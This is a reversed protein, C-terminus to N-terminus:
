NQNEIDPSDSLNEEIFYKPRNKTEMYIKGIYGGIFGLAALNLGSFFGIISILFWYSMGRVFYSAAFTGAIGLFGAITLLIGLNGVMKIPKISFSSIGDFAFDLMKKLPYKSKGAARKKREYYVKDSKFGIQPIIGRLFLNDEKYQFLANLAKRSMLRYDAHNKIIEVGFIKMLGYFLKATFRKLISDKRRKSRVGYVIENGEYFKDIMQPITNIDDQLDADLSIVADAYKNAETLGAILANQHGRNRSLCIGTFLSDSKHLGTIIEWTKDKSGDNVFLIKSDEKIKKKDILNLMLEKLKQSTLPLVEEENYCPVVLYIRKM